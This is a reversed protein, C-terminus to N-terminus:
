RRVAPLAPRVRKVAVPSVAEGVYPYVKVSDVRMAVVPPTGSDRCPVYGRYVPPACEDLQLALRMTCTTPISRPDTIRWTLKGDMFYRLEKPTWDVAVTHWRSYDGRLSNIKKGPDGAGNHIANIGKDRGPSGVEVLDIEGDDPWRCGDNPWLLVAGQYGAGKDIKFRVEWRGYKQRRRDGIAAGVERQAADVSGTLVLSGGTVSVLAPDRRPRVNDLKDYTYWRDSDFRNFEEAVPKGWVTGALAPPPAADAVTAAGLTVGLSASTLTVAGSAAVTAAWRRRSRKPM